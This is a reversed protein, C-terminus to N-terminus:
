IIPPEHQSNLITKLNKIARHQIVRIAGDSKNVIAAVEAPKLDEVFRLIIITQQEEPLQKIAEKVKNLDALQDLRQEVTQVSQTPLATPFSDENVEDLPVAEKKTRYHDIVQNRAIRYLWSSFPFGRDNFNEINQWASLFVEHTLDEAEQKNGVKLFVFRYIQPLYHDYLKAFCEGEGGKLRRILEQEGTLM